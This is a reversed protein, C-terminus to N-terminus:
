GLPDGDNDTDDPEEATLDTELDTPAWDAGDDLEPGPGADPEVVELETEAGEGVLDDDPLAPGAGTGFDLEDLDDLGAPQEAAVDPTTGVLDFWDADVDAAGPEAGVASHATVYPALHEAVEVPATEAFSVVAEAVLEDPLGPHGQDRLLGAPDGAASPAGTLDAFVDRLPRASAM